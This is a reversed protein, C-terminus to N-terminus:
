ASENALARGNQDTAIKLPELRRTTIQITNDIEDDGSDDAPVFDSPQGNVVGQVTRKTTIIRHGATVLRSVALIYEGADEIKELKAKAGEILAQLSDSFARDSQTREQAAAEVVKRSEDTAVQDGQTANRDREATWGEKAARTKVTTPHIGFETSIRAPSWRKVVYATRIALWNITARKDPM